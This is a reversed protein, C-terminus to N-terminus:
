EVTRRITASPFTCTTFGLRRGIIGVLSTAFNVKGLAITNSFGSLLAYSENPPAPESPWNIAQQDVRKKLWLQELSPVHASKFVFPKIQAFLLM